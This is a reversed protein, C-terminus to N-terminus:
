GRGINLAVTFGCLMLHPPLRSGQTYVKDAPFRLPGAYRGDASKPWPLYKCGARLKTPRMSQRDRWLDITESVAEDARPPQHFTPEANPHNASRQVPTESAPEVSRRGGAAPRRVVRETINVRPLIVMVYQSYTGWAAQPQDTSPATCSQLTSQPHIHSQWVDSSFCAVSVGPSLPAPPLRPILCLDRQPDATYFGPGRADAYILSPSQPSPGRGDVTVPYAVGACSAGTM